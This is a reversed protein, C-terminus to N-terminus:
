TDVEGPGREPPPIKTENRAARILRSAQSRSYGLENAVALAPSRSGAAVAANYIRAAESVLEASMPRARRAFRAGLYFTGEADDPLRFAGPFKSAQPAEECPEELQTVARKILQDVVTATGEATVGGHECDSM